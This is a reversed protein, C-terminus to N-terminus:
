TMWSSFVIKDVLIENPLNINGIELDSRIELQEEETLEERLLFKTFLPSLRM